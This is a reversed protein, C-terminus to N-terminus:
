KVTPNKYGTKKYNAQGPIVGRLGGVPDESDGTRRPILHVHPYRVTQGAEANRNMGVNFGACEGRRIMAEGMLYAMRFAETIAGPADREPVFLLHGPTVPYRDQYVKVDGLDLYIQTWPAVGDILAEKLSYHTLYQPAPEPM